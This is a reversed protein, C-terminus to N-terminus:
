FELQLALESYKILESKTKTKDQLFQLKFDM